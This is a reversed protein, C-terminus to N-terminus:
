SPDTDAAAVDTTSPPLVTVSNPTGAEEQNLVNKFRQRFYVKLQKAKVPSVLVMDDTMEVLRPTLTGGDSELNRKLDSVAVGSSISRQQM